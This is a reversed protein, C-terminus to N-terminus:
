LLVGIIERNLRALNGVNLVTSVTVSSAVNSGLYAFIMRLMIGSSLLDELMQRIDILINILELLSLLVIALKNYLITIVIIAEKGFEQVESSLSL